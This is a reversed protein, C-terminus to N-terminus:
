NQVYYINRHKFVLEDNLNKNNIFKNFNINKLCKDLFYMSFMGCESGGKQHEINNHLFKFDKNTKLNLKKLQQKVIKIFDSVEPPPKNGVSDYYYAGYNKSNIDLNIYLSTWHSGSQWHKDLNFVFGLKTKKEKLLDKVNLSCMEPSVCTNGIKTRFDIPFVGIFKFKNYKDQYQNMVNLINYTNLWKNPDNDWEKPKEPRFNEKYKSIETNIKMYNQKLWCYENNSCNDFNKAMLQEWLEKKGVNLNIKDTHSNNYNKAIKKLQSLSYCTKVKDLKTKPSCTLTDM